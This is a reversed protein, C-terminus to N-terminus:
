QSCLTIYQTKTGFGTRM